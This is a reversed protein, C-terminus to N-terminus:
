YVGFTLKKKGYVSGDHSLIGYGVEGGESNERPNAGLVGRAGAPRELVKRGYKGLEVIGNGWDQYFFMCIEMPIKWPFMM